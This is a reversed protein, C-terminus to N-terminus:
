KLRLFAIQFWIDLFQQRGVSVDACDYSLTIVVLCLKIEAKYYIQKTRPAPSPTVRTVRQEVGPFRTLCIGTKCTLQIQKSCLWNATRMLKWYWWWSFARQPWQLQKIYGYLTNRTKAFIPNRTLRCDHKTKRLHTTRLMYNRILLYLPGTVSWLPANPHSCTYSRSNRLRPVLLPSHDADPEPRAKGGPFPGGTDM